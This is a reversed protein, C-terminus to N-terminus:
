QEYHITRNWLQFNHRQNCLNRINTNHRHQQSSRGQASFITQKFKHLGPTFLLNGSHDIYVCTVLQSLFM